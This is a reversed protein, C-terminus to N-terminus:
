SPFRLELIRDRGWQDRKVTAAAMPEAQRAAALVPAAQQSGIELLALGGRRLYRGLQPLLRRVVDLGDMGGALALRPEFRAPSTAEAELDSEPVYPLNAAVLDFRASIGELLDTNALYVRDGLGLSQVNRAAVRLAALSIDVAVV